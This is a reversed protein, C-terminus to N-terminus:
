LVKKNLQNIIYHIFLKWENIAFDITVSLSIVFYVKQYIKNNGDINSYRLAMLYNFIVMSYSDSIFSLHCSHVVLVRVLVLDTLELFTTIRFPYKVFNKCSLPDFRDLQGLSIFYCFSKLTARDYLCVHSLNDFKSHSTFFYNLM